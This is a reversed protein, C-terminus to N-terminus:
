NAGRDLEREVGFAVVHDLKETVLGCGLPERRMQQENKGRTWVHPADHDVVLGVRWRDHQERVPAAAEYADFAACESDRARKGHAGHAGRAGHASSAHM